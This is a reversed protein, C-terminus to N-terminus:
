TASLADRHWEALSGVTVQKSPWPPAISADLTTLHVSEAWPIPVDREAGKFNPDSSAVYGALQIDVVPVQRDTNIARIPELRTLSTTVIRRQRGDCILQEYTPPSADV